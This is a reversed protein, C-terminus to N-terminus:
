SSIVIAKSSRQKGMNDILTVSKVDKGVMLQRASQSIFSSGYYFEQKQTKGNSLTLIASVEAPMLPVNVLKTKLAFIELPGRNQSAAVLYKGDVSKLKVLAKGNGPIFIGSQLISRASFHGTGDGMLVLGNMADQRGDTPQPSYDNGNIMLDLNGDGDFDDAVMGNVVSVQAQMPLPTMTFKGNGDNRIYVSKLNNARLIIASDLQEKTFVQDMTTMAYAHHTPFKFRMGNLQKVLDDREQGPYERMTPDELTGPLYLSPIADFSGNKDFDAAYVSVPYKDSARYFSNEGTNGVIYDMDGDNDFDGAVVSNWWGIQDSIGTTKTINKFVGHDNRLFTVPMWEGALVLDPWGDNDFDTFIADCTMGINILDKAVTATVDTFKVKGDKTDNRLIICSVPKPYNWPDVRGSIFLDLDGDKDYDVARVCLKSEFNLPLASSDMTFNGKGDNIYLKDRYQPANHAYGFGGAAVYYDLDGDNDADFLLIGEDVEEKRKLTDSLLYKETFSGNPQQLFFKSSHFVTAGMAIDDLGNHDIDGM